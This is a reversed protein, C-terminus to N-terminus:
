EKIGTLYAFLEQVLQMEAEGTVFKWYDYGIFNGYDAALSSSEDYPSAKAYIKVGQADEFILVSMMSYFDHYKYRTEYVPTPTSIMTGPVTTTKIGGGSSSYATFGPVYMPTMKTGTQVRYGIKKQRKNLKAKLYHSVKGADGPLVQGGMLKKFHEFEGDEWPHCQNSKYSALKADIIKKATWYRGEADAAISVMKKADANCVIIKGGKKQVWDITKDLAVYSPYDLSAVRNTPSIHHDSTWCYDVKTYTSCGVLLVMLGFLIITLTNCRYKMQAEVEQGDSHGPLVNGPMCLPIQYLM